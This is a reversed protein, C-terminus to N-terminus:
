ITYNLIDKTSLDKHAWEGNQWDSFLPCVYHECGEFYYHTAQSWRTVDPNPPPTGGHLLNASWILTSGKKATFTTENGGSSKILQILFNEYEAYPEFQEGRDGPVQLNLDPFSYFPWKHSGPIYKLTGTTDVSVDELATWTGVMWNYPVTQFHIADSHYPQNTSKKFNITQFPMAKKGYMMELISLIKPSRALDLVPQSNKWAEFVRPSDSYEYRSDQKAFTQNNITTDMDDIISDCENDTLVEDLVIYGNTHFQILLERDTESYQDKHYELLDYFFPSEIWPCSLANKDVLYRKM